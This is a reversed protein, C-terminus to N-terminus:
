GSSIGRLIAQAMGDGDPRGALIATARLAEPLAQAVAESMACVRIEARMGAPCAAVFLKASRASFLPVVVLGAEALLQRAAASLPAPRQEYVTVAVTPVGAETLLRDLPVSIDQGCLYLLRGPRERTLAELLDEATAAVIGVALGIARAAEATRRGVCHAPGALGRCAALAAESTVVLGEFPGPPLEAALSVTEMLPSVVLRARDGLDARLRAAFRDAQPQPRTILVSVPKPVPRPLDRRRGARSQAPAPGISGAVPM